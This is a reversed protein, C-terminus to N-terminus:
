KDNNIVEANKLWKKFSGIFEGTIKNSSPTKYFVMFGEQRLFIRKRKGKQLVTGEKLFAIDTLEM